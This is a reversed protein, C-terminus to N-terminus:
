NLNDLFSLDLDSVTAIYGHETERIEIDSDLEKIMQARENLEEKTPNFLSRRFQEADEGHLIIM